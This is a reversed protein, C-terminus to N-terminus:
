LESLVMQATMLGSGIVLAMGGGPFTWHGTLYLNKIPTKNPIRTLINPSTCDWGIVAGETNLTYREVTLPTGSDKVLIHRSLGPIIDEMRKIVAETIRAKEEKWDRGGLHYPAYCFINLCHCGKPALSPDTLTPITFIVHPGPIEGRDISESARNLWNVDLSDGLFNSHCTLGFERPDLDIGMYVTFGSRSLKKKMLEKIFEPPLENEGILEFFTKRIDGNSVVKKAGIRKGADTEIGVAEGNDLLIKKVMTRLQLKGGNRELGKVFVERLSKSGGKPYFAGMEMLAMWSYSMLIGSAEDIPQCWIGGPLSLIAKLKENKLYENVMDLFTKDQYQALIPSPNPFNKLDVYISRMTKFLDEIGKKEAPFEKSLTEMYEDYGKNLERNENEFFCKIRPNKLPFFEIEDLLNLERIAEYVVGGEECEGLLFHLSSDFIFEKRKFAACCGGPSAQKEIIKVKKGQKALIAGCSLGGLGSGIIIVDYEEDFKTSNM